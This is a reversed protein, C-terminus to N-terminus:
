LRAGRASKIDVWKRLLAELDEMQVPKAVYDDMGSALCRERDGEMAHATMAIVPTRRKGKERRRLEEAAQYGDLVPMQCDMFVVDYPHKELASLVDRGNTVADARLGLKSLQALIVKQNVLNDEAILVAIDRKEWSPGPGQSPYGAREKKEPVPATPAPKMCPVRIWFTSGQGPRGEVGITGGMLNVIQKSIALGLGTGGFRRTTSPDAQTFPEFLYSRQEPSIGIGTDLVDIQIIAIRDTEAQKNVKVLVEGRETFKLANGLLNTLVQKLRAADGRLAAPVPSDFRFDLRLNKRRAEPKFVGVVEGVLSRLDYDREELRMKGSEIKSFDLINNVISLLSDASGRVIETFEKQQDNLPTDLLLGAMGVVANLPTRIEHSMNALFQSKVRASELAADRAQSLEENVKVLEATRTEVRSELERNLKEIQAMANKFDSIDRTISLLCREGEVDILRLSIQGPFIRGNKARFSGEMRGEGTEDLLRVLDEREHPRAWLSLDLTTQGVSEERSYGTLRSFSENVDLIKGDSVRSIIFSEPSTSFIRSFKDESRRIAEEAQKRASIDRAIGLVSVVEGEANRIPVLRTELWLTKQGLSYSVESHYPAGTRFVNQINRSHREAMGSPFFDAQPKGLFEEPAKNMTRAATPNVYQFKEDPCLMFINDPIVDLVSRLIEESRRLDEEARRHETIDILAGVIAVTKGDKVVPAENVEVWLRRGKKGVLELEYAPQRKGTDIARQTLEYGRQNIPNDTLFETWHVLAEEPECDFFQRTQPSMFTLVHDPTHSYFLNTSHEVIHRLKQESEKLRHEARALNETKMELNTRILRETEFLYINEISLAARDAINKALTLDEKGFWRGSGGAETIGLTLVGIVCGDLMMPVAMYSVLGLEQRLRLFLPNAAGSEPDQPDFHPLRKAEGTRAIEAPGGAIAADGLVDQLIAQLKKQKEPLVHAVYSAEINGDKGVKHVSCWDAMRPVLIKMLNQVSLRLDLSYDSPRGIDALLQSREMSRHAQMYLRSNDIACASREALEQALVLEKRAHRRVSPGFALSISGLIRNHTVIPVVIKSKLGLEQILRRLNEDPVKATWEEDLIDSFLRPRGTKLVEWVPDQSRPAPPFCMLRDAIPQKQPDAHAAAVRDLTGDENLLDIVAWDGLLPLALNLTKKLTSPYDLSTCLIEVCQCSFHKPPKSTKKASGKVLDTSHLIDHWSMM